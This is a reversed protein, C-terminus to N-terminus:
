SFNVINELSSHIAFFILSCVILATQFAKKADSDRGDTENAQSADKWLTQSDTFFLFILLLTKHIDRKLSTNFLLCVKTEGYFITLQAILCRVREVSHDIQQM